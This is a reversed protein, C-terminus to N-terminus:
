FLTKVARHVAQIAAECFGIANEGGDELHFSIWKEIAIDIGQSHSPMQTRPDVPVGLMTVGSGFRVSSPDWSVSGSGPRSVNVRPQERRKQPILRTHKKNALERIRSFIANKPSTFPQLSRLKADVDPAIKDLDAAKWQSLSEKYGREDKAVPFYGGRKPQTTIKGKIKTEFVATMSQDLVNSCKEIIEHTINLAEPSVQKATLDRNYVDKLEGMLREARAIMSELYPAPDQTMHQLYDQRFPQAVITARFLRGGRQM